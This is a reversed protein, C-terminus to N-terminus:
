QKENRKKNRKWEFYEKISAGLTFYLAILIPVGILLIITAKM